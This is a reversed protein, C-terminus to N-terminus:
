ILIKKKISDILKRNNNNSQDNLLNITNDRVLKNKYELEKKEIEQKKKGLFSIFYQFNYIKFKDGIEKLNTLAKKIRDLIINIEKKPLNDIDIPNEFLDINNKFFVNLNRIVESYTIYDIKLLKEEFSDFLLQYIKKEIKNFNIEKLKIFLNNSFNFRISLVKIIPSIIENYEFIGDLDFFYEKEKKFKDFILIEEEESKIKNEFEDLQKSTPVYKEYNSFKLM